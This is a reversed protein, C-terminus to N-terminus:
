GRRAPHGPTECVTTHGEFHCIRRDAATRTRGVGRIPTQPSRFDGHALLTRETRGRSSATKVVQLVRVGAVTNERDNAAMVTTRAPDGFPERLSSRSRSRACGIAAKDTKTQLHKLVKSMKVVKGAKRARKPAKEIRLANQKTDTTWLSQRGALSSVPSKTEVLFM